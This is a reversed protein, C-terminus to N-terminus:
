FRDAVARGSRWFLRGVSLGAKVYAEGTAAGARAARAGIGDSDVAGSTLSSVVSVDRHSPLGIQLVLPVVGPLDTSVVAPAPEEGVARPSVVDENPVTDAVTAVRARTTRPAAEVRRQEAFVRQAVAPLTNVVGPDLPVGTLQAM